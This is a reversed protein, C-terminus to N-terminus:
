HNCYLSLRNIAYIIYQPRYFGNKLDEGARLILIYHYNDIDYKM